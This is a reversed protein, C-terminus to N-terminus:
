ADVWKGNKLNITGSCPPIGLKIRCATSGNTCALNWWADGAFGLVSTDLSDAKRMEALAQFLRQGNAWDALSQRRRALVDFDGGAPVQQWCWKGDCFQPVFDGEQSEGPGAFELGLPLTPLKIKYETLEM